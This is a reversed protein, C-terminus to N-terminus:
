VYLIRSFYEHAQDIGLVYAGIIGDPRVVVIATSGTEVGYGTRAHGSEDVCVRAGYAEVGGVAERMGPELVVLAEAVGSQVYGRLGEVSGRVDELSAPFILIVHKGKAAAVLGYMTHHAVPPSTTAGGEDKGRVSLDTADPARDGARLEGGAVGHPDQHGRAEAKDRGEVVIPSWRYNIGLQLLNLPRSMPDIPDETPSSRATSPIRNFAREHLQTTLNLMEAVVPMRETEYTELLSPPSLGKHVLALKWALNIADQMATNTGQGGAPSHVRGVCFKDVM